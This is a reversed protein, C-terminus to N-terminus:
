FSDRDGVICHGWQGCAECTGAARNPPGAAIQPVRDMCVGGRAGAGDEPFPPDQFPHAPLRLSLSSSPYFFLLFPVQNYALLLSNPDLERAQRLLAAARWLDGQAILVLAANNLWLPNPEPAEILLQLDALPIPRSSRLLCEVRLNRVAPLSLSLRDLLRLADDVHGLQLLARAYEPGVACGSALADEYYPGAEAGRGMALLRRAIRHATDGRLESQMEASAKLLVVLGSLVTDASEEASELAFVLNSVTGVHCLDVAAAMQLSKGLRHVAEKPRDLALLAAGAMAHGAHTDVGELAVLCDEFQKAQFCMGACVASKVWGRTDGSEFREFDRVFPFYDGRFLLQAARKEGTVAYCCGLLAVARRADRTWGDWSEYLLHALHEAPSAGDSDFRPGDVKRRKAGGKLVLLKVTDELVGAARVLDGGCLLALARNFAVLPDTPPLKGLLSSASSVVDGGQERSLLYQLTAENFTTRFSAPLQRVLALAEAYRRQHYLVDVRRQAEQGEEMSGERELALTNHSIARERVRKM